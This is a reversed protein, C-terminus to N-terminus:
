DFGRLGGTQAPFVGVDLAGLHPAGAGPMWKRQSRCPVSASDIEGEERFTGISDVNAEEISRIRRNGTRYDSNGLAGVVDPVYIKRAQARSLPVCAPRPSRVLRFIPESVVGGFQQDIWVRFRYFTLNPRVLAQQAVSGTRLVVIQAPVIAAVGCEEGLADHDIRREVPAVISSQARGPVVGDDILKVDLAHRLEMGTNGLVFAPGVGPQGRIGHNLM